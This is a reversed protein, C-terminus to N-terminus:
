RANPDARSGSLIVARIREDNRATELILQYMEQESRM